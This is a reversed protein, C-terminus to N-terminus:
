YFFSALKNWINEIRTEISPFQLKTNIRSKKGEEISRALEISFFFPVAIGLDGLGKGLIAADDGEIPLGLCDNRSHKRIRISRELNSNYICYDFAGKSILVRGYSIKKEKLSSYFEIKSPLQNLITEIRKVGEINFTVDIGAIICPDSYCISISDFLNDSMIQTLFPDSVSAIAVSEISM